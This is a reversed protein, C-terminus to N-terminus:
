APIERRGDALIREGIERSVYVDFRRTPIQFWIVDKFFVKGAKCHLDNWPIRLDTNSIARFDWDRYQWMRWKANRQVEPDAMLYLASDTAGIRCRSAAEADSIRVECAYYKGPFEGQFGYDRQFSRRRSLNRLTLLAGLGAVVLIIFPTM